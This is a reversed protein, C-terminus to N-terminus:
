RVTATIMDGVRIDQLDEANIPATIKEYRARTHSLLTLDAHVRLTGRRHAWGTSVAVGITSPHRASEIHAGM